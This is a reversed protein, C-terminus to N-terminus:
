GFCVNHTSTLVTITLIAETYGCHINQTFITFFNFKKRHFKRNKAESFFFRYIADVALNKLHGLEWRVLTISSGEVTEDLGCNSLGFVFM